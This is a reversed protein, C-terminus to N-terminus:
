AGGIIAGSPQMAAVFRIVSYGGDTHEDSLHDSVNAKCSGDESKLALRSMAYAAIDQHRTRVEGWTIQADGDIDLGIAYDLDRLAINWQGAIEAGKVVLTLYTDSPKHAHAHSVIFFLLMIRLRKM